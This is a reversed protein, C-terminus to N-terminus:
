MTNVSTKTQIKNTYFNYEIKEFNTKSNVNNLGLYHSKKISNFVASITLDKDPIDAGKCNDDDKPKKPNTKWHLFLNKILPWLTSTPVDNDFNVYDDITNLFNIDEQEQIAQLPITNNFGAHHFCNQSTSELVKEWAISILLLIGDSVNM